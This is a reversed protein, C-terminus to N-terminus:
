PPESHLCARQITSWFPKSQPEPREGVELVSLPDDYDVGAAYVARM